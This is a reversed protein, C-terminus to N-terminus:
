SVASAAPELSFRWNLKALDDTSRKLEERLAKAPKGMRKIVRMSGAIRDAKRVYESIAGVPLPKKFVWTAGRHLLEVHRADDLHASYVIVVCGANVFNSVYVDSEGRPTMLDLVVVTPRLEDINREAVDPDDYEYLAHGENRLIKAILQRTDPDDDILFVRCM